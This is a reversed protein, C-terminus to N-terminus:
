AGCWSVWCASKGGGGLCSRSPFYNGPWLSSHDHGAPQLWSERSPMMLSEPHPDVFDSCRLLFFSAPPRPPQLVALLATRTQQATAKHRGGVLSSVLLPGRCVCVCVSGCCQKGEDRVLQTRQSGPPERHEAQFLHTVAGNEVKKKVGWGGWMMRQCVRDAARCCCCLHCKVANDGCHGSQHATAQLAATCM